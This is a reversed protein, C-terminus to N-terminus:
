KVLKILKSIEMGLTEDVVDGSAKLDEKDWRQRM